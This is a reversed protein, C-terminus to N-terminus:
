ALVGGGHATLWNQGFSADALAYAARGRQLADGDNGGLFDPNTTALTLYSGEQVPDGPTVPSMGGEASLSMGEPMSPRSLDPGMRILEQVLGMIVAGAIGIPGGILGAGAIKLPLPVTEGTAAGYAMGIGPLHHLPNLGRLVVDFPIDLPQPWPQEPGVPGAGDPPAARPLHSAIGDIM